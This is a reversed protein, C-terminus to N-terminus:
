FLVSPVGISYVASRVLRDSLTALSAYEHQIFFNTFTSMLFSRDSVIFYKPHSPTIRFERVFLMM